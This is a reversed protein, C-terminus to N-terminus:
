GDLRSKSVGADRGCHDPHHPRSVALGPNNQPSPRESIGFSARLPELPNGIRRIEPAGPTPVLTRHITYISTKHGAPELPGLPGDVVLSGPRVCENRDPVCDDNSECGHAVAQIRVQDWGEEGTQRRTDRLRPPLGCSSGPSRNLPATMASCDYYFIPVRAAEGGIEIDIQRVGEFFSSGRM